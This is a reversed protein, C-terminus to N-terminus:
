ACASMAKRSLLATDILTPGPQRLFTQAFAGVPERAQCLAGYSGDPANLRGESFRQCHVPEFKATYFRHVDTGAPLRVREPRREALDAPPM